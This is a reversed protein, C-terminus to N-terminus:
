RTFRRFGSCSIFELKDEKALKDLLLNLGLTDSSIHGAIVVNLHSKQVNKFHEESLHMAVITGVGATELKDFIEKPGETGGTMDVFIKGTRNKPDGFLVKPGANMRMGEQYEPIGKLIDVIEGVAEPKKEDLLKQLYNVVHNDAPTHACMLSIGLLKAADVTRAHNGPMVKREVERIRDKLLGEAVNIPVGFRQLIDAQMEMVEYFNALARGAPHHSVALDIQQGRERLRDVLLIEGVDIDIGLLIKKVESEPDGNLIRTDAYPNVLKETDFLEKDKEKLGEYEKKADILVKSVAEKGRPDVQMGEKVVFDYIKHLKM